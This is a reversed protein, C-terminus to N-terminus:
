YLYLMGSDNDIWQYKSLLLTMELNVTYLLTMEIVPKDFNETFLLEMRNTTPRIECHLEIILLDFNM